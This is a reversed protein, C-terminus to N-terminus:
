KLLPTIDSMRRPIKDLPHQLALLHNVSALGAFGPELMLILWGVEKIGDTLQQQM